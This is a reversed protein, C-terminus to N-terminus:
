YRSRKLVRELVNVYRVSLRQLSDDLRRAHKGLQIRLKLTEALALKTHTHLTTKAHGQKTIHYTSRMDGHHTHERERAQSLQEDVTDREHGATMLGVVEKIKGEVERLEEEAAEAETKQGEAMRQRTQPQGPGCAHAKKTSPRTM